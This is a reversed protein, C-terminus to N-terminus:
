DIQIPAPKARGLDPHSKMLELKIIFGTQALWGDMTKLHAIEQDLFARLAPAQAGTKAMREVMMGYADELLEVCMWPSMTGPACQAELAQVRKEDRVRRAAALASTPTVECMMLLRDRTRHFADTSSSIAESIQPHRLAFRVGSKTREPDSGHPAALCAVWIAELYALQDEPKSVGDCISFALRGVRTGLGERDAGNVLARFLQSVVPQPLTAAEASFVFKHLSDLLAPSVPSLVARVLAYALGPECTASNTLLWSQVASLVDRRDGEFGIRRLISDLAIAKLQTAVDVAADVLHRNFRDAEVHRKVDTTLAVLTVAMEPTPTAAFHRLAANLLPGTKLPSHAVLLMMAWEEDVKVRAPRSQREKTALDMGQAILKDAGDCESIQIFLNELLAEAQTRVSNGLPKSAMPVVVKADYATAISARLALQLNSDAEDDGLLHARAVINFFAQRLAEGPQGASAMGGKWLGRVGAALRESRADGEPLGCAAAAVADILMELRQAEIGAGGAADMICYMASELGPSRPALDERAVLELVVLLLYPAITAGGLRKVLQGLAPGIALTADGKALTLMSKVCNAVDQPDVPKGSWPNFPRLLKELSPDVAELGPAKTHTPTAKGDGMAASRGTIAVSVSAPGSHGNLTQYLGVPACTKSKERSRQRPAYANSKKDLPMTM